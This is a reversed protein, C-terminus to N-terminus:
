AQSTDQGESPVDEGVYVKDDVAPARIVFGSYPTDVEVIAHVVGAAVFCIEGAVIRHVEDGVSLMLAGELVLYAEDSERHLHPAPDSWPTNCSNRLIQLHDSRFGLDDPPYPGSLVAFEDPIQRKMFGPRDPATEGM